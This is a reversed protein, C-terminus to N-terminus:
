SSLFSITVAQIHSFFSNILSSFDQNEFLLAVQEISSLHKPSRTQLVETSDSPHLVSKQCRCVGLDFPWLAPSTHSAIFISSWYSSSSGSPWKASTVDWASLVANNGKRVESSWDKWCPSHKALFAETAQQWGGASSQDSQELNLWASHPWRNWHCRKWWQILHVWKM